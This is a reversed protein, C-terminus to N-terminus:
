RVNHRERRTKEGACKGGCDKEGKGSVIRELAVYDFLGKISRIVPLAM